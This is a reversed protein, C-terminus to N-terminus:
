KSMKLVNSFLGVSTAFYTSKNWKMIIQYNDYAMYTKYGEGGPQVISVLKDEDDPFSEGRVFNVGKDKWFKITHLNESGILNTDLNPPLWVRDMLPEDKKWGSNSLYSAISAFVDSRTSWIDKRGDGDYDEAYQIFSSPMFQCQGMAGAWSGRLSKLPIHGEEVIKLAKLLEDRFFDARRGEHALTALSRVVNFGGTNNGFNTEIGWLAVLYQAGVGYKNSIDALLKRESRMYRKGNKIRSSTIVFKKYKKFALDNSLQRKDLRIVKKDIKLNYPLARSLLDESIGAGKAEQRFDKIWDAFVGNFTKKLVKPKNVVVGSSCLRPPKCVTNESLSNFLSGLVIKNFDFIPLNYLDAGYSTKTPPKIDLDTDDLDKAFSNGGMVVSASMVMLLAKSFKIVKALPFKVSSHAM